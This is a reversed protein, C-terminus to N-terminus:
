FTSVKKIHQLCPRMSILLTSSFTIKERIAMLPFIVLESV